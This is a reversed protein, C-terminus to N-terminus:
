EDKEKRISFRYLFETFSRGMEIQYTEEFMDLEYFANDFIGYHFYGTSAVLLFESHFGEEARAAAVGVIDQVTWMMLYNNNLMGEGGDYKSIFELYDVPLESSYLNTLENLEELPPKPHLDLVQIVNHFPHFDSNEM